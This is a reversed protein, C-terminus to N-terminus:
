GQKIAQGIRKWFAEVATDTNVLSNGVREANQARRRFVQSATLTEDENRIRVTNAAEQTVPGACTNRIMRTGTIAYRACVKVAYAGADAVPDNKEREQVYVDYHTGAYVFTHDPAVEPVTSVMLGAFLVAVM